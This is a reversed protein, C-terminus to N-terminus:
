KEELDTRHLGVADAREEGRPLLCVMRNRQM